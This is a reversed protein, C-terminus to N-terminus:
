RSDCQQLLDLSLWSSRGDVGWGDSLGVSEVLLKLCDLDGVAARMFATDSHHGSKQVCVEVRMSMHFGLEDEGEDRAARFLWESM